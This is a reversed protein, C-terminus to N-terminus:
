FDDDELAAALQEATLQTKVKTARPKKEKTAAQSIAFGTIKRLASVMKGIDEPLLFQTAAPNEMIAAKLSTMENKLDVGEIDCLMAIRTQLESAAEQPTNLM